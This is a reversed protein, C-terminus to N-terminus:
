SHTAGALFFSACRSHVLLVDRNRAIEPERVLSTEREGERGIVIVDEDPALTDSCYRCRPPEVHM